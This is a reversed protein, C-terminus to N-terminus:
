FFKKVFITLSAGLCEDGERLGEGVEICRFDECVSRRGSDSCVLCYVTFQTYYVRMSSM